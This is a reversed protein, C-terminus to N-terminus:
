AAEREAVAAPLLLRGLSEIDISAAQGARLLPADPAIGLLLVDGPGLTMFESIDAVLRAVPRVMGATGTRQVVEGDIRVTVALRDPDVVATPPTVDGSIACSADRARFRVSPRYVDAHPVHLDVVITYGAVCDMAGREDVRCASRGIVIGLSAGLVMADVRAPLRPPEGPALLTNRPKLYLVPARPPAQYPPRHVAEGLAALAGPHNLLTGIVTGSLRYPPIDFTPAPPM